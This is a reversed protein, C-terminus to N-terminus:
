SLINVMLKKPTEQNMSFSKKIGKLGGFFYLIRHSIFGLILFRALCWFLSNLHAIM